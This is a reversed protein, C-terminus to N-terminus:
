LYICTLKIQKRGKLYFFRSHFFTLRVCLFYSCWEDQFLSRFTYNEFYMTKSLFCASFLTKALGAFLTQSIDLCFSLGHWMIWKAFPAFNLGSFLRCCHLSSCIEKFPTLKHWCSDFSIWEMFIQNAGLKVLWENLDRILWQKILRQHGELYEFNDTAIYTKDKNMKSCRSQYWIVKMFRLRLMIEYTSMLKPKFFYFFFCPFSHFLIFFFWIWPWPFSFFCKGCWIM